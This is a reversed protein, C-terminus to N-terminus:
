YEAGSGKKDAKLAGVGKTIMSGAISLAAELLAEKPVVRNVLGM